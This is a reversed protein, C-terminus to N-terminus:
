AMLRRAYSQDILNYILGDPNFNLRISIDENREASLIERRKSEPIDDIGFSVASNPNSKTIIWGVVAGEPTRPLGLLDYVENLFVHKRIRLLDNAERQKQWLYQFVQDPTWSRRWRDSYQDFIQSYIEQYADRKKKQHLKKKKNDAEIARNIEREENAAKLTEPKISNLMRWDVEDGFEEKVNTRYRDFGAELTKYAAATMVLRGNIMRYGALVLIVSVVGTTAVPAYARILQKKCQRKLAKSNTEHVKETIQGKEFAEDLQSVFDDRTDMAEKAKVTANCAGVVTVGFGVIGSGVLIEPAHAKAFLLGNGAAAKIAAGVKSFILALNM